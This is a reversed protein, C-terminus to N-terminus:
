NKVTSTLEGVKVRSGKEIIGDIIQTETLTGVVRMDAGVVNVMYYSNYGFLKLLKRAPEGERAAIVSARASGDELKEKSYLVDRMIMIEGVRKEAIINCIIFAAILLVSFNFRTLAFIGLGAIALIAGFIKTILVTFNYAKVFGWRQTLAARMVRGGDLPLAPMLNLVAISINAALLFGDYSSALLILAMIINSIPGAAAILIEKHPDKIYHSDLRLTIGFPLVEIERVGIGLRWAAFAHALEHMLVVCYAVLVPMFFDFCIGALLLIPVTIHIKVFKSLRM